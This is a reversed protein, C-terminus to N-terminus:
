NVMILNESYVNREAPTRPHAHRGEISMDSWQLSLRNRTKHIQSASPIVARHSNQEGIRAIRNLPEDVTYPM